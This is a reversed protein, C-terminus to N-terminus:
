AVTFYHGRSEVARGNAFRATVFFEAGGSALSVTPTATCQQKTCASAAVTQNVIGSAPTGGYQNVWLTYSAAGPMPNWRYSPRSVNNSGSPGITRVSIGPLPPATVPPQGISTMQNLFEDASPKRVGNLDFLGFSQELPTAGSVDNLAYWAAVRVYTWTRIKAFTQALLEAQGAPGGIQHSGQQTSSYGFETFWIPSTDGNALMSAHIEKTGKQFCWYPAKTDPCEDPLLGKTYDDPRVGAYPHLSLADFSGKIGNAYLANLYDVDGASIAGALVSATPDAQKVVPYTAKALAAYNVAASLDVFLGNSDNIAPPRPGVGPWFATLNPENWIEYAIVTGPVRTAYRSALVGLARAYEAYKSPLPPFMEDGADCPQPASTAWCPSNGFEVTVKLGAARAADLEADLPDWFWARTDGPGNEEMLHWTVPLRVVKAKIATARAINSASLSTAHVGFLPGSTQATSRVSVGLLCLAATLAGALLGHKSGHKSRRSRM